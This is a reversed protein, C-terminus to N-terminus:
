VFQYEGGGEAGGLLTCEIHNVASGSKRHMKTLLTYLPIKFTMVTGHENSSIKVYPLASALFWMMQILVSTPNCLRLIGIILCEAKKKREKKRKKESLNLIGVLTHSQWFLCSLAKETSRDSLMNSAAVNPLAFFSM